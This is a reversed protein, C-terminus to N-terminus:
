NDAAGATIAAFIMLKMGRCATRLAAVGNVDQFVTEINAEAGAMIGDKM